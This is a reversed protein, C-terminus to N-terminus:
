GLGDIDGHEGNRETLDVAIINGVSGLIETGDGNFTDDDCIEWSVHLFRPTLGERM